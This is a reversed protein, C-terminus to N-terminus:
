GRSLLLFVGPCPFLSAELCRMTMQPIGFANVPDVPISAHEYFTRMEVESAPAPSSEEEKVQVGNMQPTQPNRMHPTGQKIAQEPFVSSLVPTGKCSIVDLAILREFSSSTFHIAEIKPGQFLAAGHVSSGSAPAPMALQARLEGRLTITYGNYYRYTWVARDCHVEAQMPSINSERAGDFSISMSKVGSQSTVLFFRPIVPTTVDPM